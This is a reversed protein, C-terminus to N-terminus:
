VGDDGEAVAYWGVSQGRPGECAAEFTLQTEWDEFWWWGVWDVWPTTTKVWKAVVDELAHPDAINANVVGNGVSKGDGKGWPQQM